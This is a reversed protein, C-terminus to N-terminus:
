ESKISSAGSSSQRVKPNGYYTIHSAGSADAELSNSARVDIRSAGSAHAKVTGGQFKEGHYQSAGSAHVELADVAGDKVEMRSAGSIGADVRKGHLQNIGLHGAGSLEVKLVPTELRAVTARSAGNFHFELDGVRLDGIVASTAGSLELRELNKVEIIFKVEEDSFNFWNFFRREGSKVGLKLRGNSLDVSVRDLVSQVAEARLSETEGQRIEVKAGGGVRIDIVDNIPYIHAMVPEALASPSLLVCVWTFMLLSPKLLKM